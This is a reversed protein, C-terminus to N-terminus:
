NSVNKKWEIIQVELPAIISWAGVFVLMILISAACSKALRWPSFYQGGITM